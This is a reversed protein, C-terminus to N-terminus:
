LLTFCEETIFCASLFCVGNTLYQLTKAQVGLM